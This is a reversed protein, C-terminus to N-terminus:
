GYIAIDIQTTQMDKAFSGFLAIKDVEYTKQLFEKHASLTAFIENKQLSNANSTPTM